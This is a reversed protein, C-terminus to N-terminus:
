KASSTTTDCKHTEWAEEFGEDDLTTNWLRVFYSDYVQQPDDWENLLRGKVMWMFRNAEKYIAKSTNKCQM